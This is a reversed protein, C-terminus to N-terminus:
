ILSKRDSSKWAGFKFVDYLASLFSIIIVFGLIVQLGLDCNSIFWMLDPDLLFDAPLTAELVQSITFPYFVTLIIASIGSIINQGASVLRTLRIRGFIVLFASYGIDVFLSIYLAMGGIIYWNENFVPLGSIELYLFFAVALSLFFGSILGGFHQGFASWFSPEKFTDVREVAQFEVMAKQPVPTRKREFEQKIDEYSKQFAVKMKEVQEKFTKEDNLYLTVIFFATGLVGLAFSLISIFPNNTAVQLMFAIIIVGIFGLAALMFFQENQIKTEPTKVSAKWNSTISSEEELFKSALTKPDEMIMLAQTFGDQISLGEKSSSIEHALDWIHAKLEKLIQEKDTLPELYGRVENLYDNVQEDTNIM